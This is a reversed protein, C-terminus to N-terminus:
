AASTNLERGLRVVERVFLDFDERRTRHNTHAVRIAFQGDLMTYTPIAIGQEHLEFMIQQNLQNLAETSLGDVRYRLCVINLPAPAMLELEPAAKIL